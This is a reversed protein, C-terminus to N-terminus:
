TDSLFIIWEVKLVMIHRPARTDEDDNTCERKNERDISARGDVEQRAIETAM